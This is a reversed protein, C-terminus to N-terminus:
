IFSYIHYKIAAKFTYMSVKNLNYFSEQEAGNKAKQQDAGTTLYSKNLM